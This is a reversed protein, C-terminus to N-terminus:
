EALPITLGFAPKKQVRAKKLYYDSAPQTKGEVPEPCRRCHVKETTHHKLPPKPNMLRAKL